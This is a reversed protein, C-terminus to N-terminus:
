RPSFTDLFTSEPCEPDDGAEDTQPGALQEAETAAIDVELVRPEGHEHLRLLDDPLAPDHGSRFGFGTLPRDTERLDDDLRQLLM